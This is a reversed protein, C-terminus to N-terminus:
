ADARLEVTIILILLSATSWSHSEVSNTHRVDLCTRSYVARLPAPDFSVTRCRICSSPSVPNWTNRSCLRFLGSAPAVVMGKGIWWGVGLLMRCAWCYAPSKALSSATRRGAGGAAGVTAASGPVNLRRGDAMNGAPSSALAGCPSYALARLM